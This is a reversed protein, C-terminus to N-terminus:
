SACPMFPNFLQSYIIIAINAINNYEHHCNIVSNTDGHKQINKADQHVAARDFSM